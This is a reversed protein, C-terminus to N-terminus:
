GGIAAQLQPELKDWSATKDLMKGNLIFTPTGQFDPYDTTANGTSAVLQEIMKQDTLCKNVKAPALGRMAAWDQFGAIKALEVFQKEPPLNQLADLKERGAGQVKAFWAKQDKFLARELPFFQKAGNCRAILSATLDLPDRVYNRFEYNIKGTKVYKAIMPGTGTEDFERCHPCTMSAYEILQVKAKPDGMLFGGAPTAQVIKSWDGDAPRAVNKVAPATAAAGTAANSENSNCGAIMAVAAAALPFFKAKM